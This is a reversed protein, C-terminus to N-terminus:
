RLPGNSSQGRMMLPFRFFYTLNYNENDFSGTRLRDKGLHHSRFFIKSSIKNRLSSNQFKMPFRAVYTKRDSAM